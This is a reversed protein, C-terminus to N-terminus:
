RWPGTIDFCFRPLWSALGANCVLVKRGSLGNVDSHVALHSSPMYLLSHFLGPIALARVVNSETLIPPCLLLAENSAPSPSVVNSTFLGSPTTTNFNLSYITGVVASGLQTYSRAVWIRGCGGASYEGSSFTLPSYGTNQMGNPSTMMGTILYDYGDSQKTSTFQGFHDWSWSYTYTSYTYRGVHFLLNDAVLVWARATSDATYSKGWYAGGSVQAATPMPGTGTDVGSMTEYAVVRAVTTGSDDIRLYCHAEAAASRYVAKNTGTYVKNWGAPAVKATITGTGTVDSIGTVTASFNDTTVSDVVIEINLQAENAGGIKLVQDARFGHATKTGTLVGGSVVLTTLTQQNYGNVLCADLIAILAGASGSLAPAGTDTSLFNKVPKTM